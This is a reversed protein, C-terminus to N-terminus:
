RPELMVVPIVRDTKEEYGAFGPYLEKQQEWIPAREEADLVRATMDRTETDIEIRVEPHAVVNHFWDPNDPAGAKSAFVALGDGVALYMM